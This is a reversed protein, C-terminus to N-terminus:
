AVKLKVKEKIIKGNRYVVVYGSSRKARDRARLAARQLAAASNIMDPDRKANSKKPRIGNM